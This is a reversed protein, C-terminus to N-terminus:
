PGGVRTPPGAGQLGAPRGPAADELVLLGRTLEHSSEFWASGKPPVAPEDAAASAPAARPRGRARPLTSPASGLWRDFIPM